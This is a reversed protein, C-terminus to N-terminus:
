PPDVPGPGDAEGVQEAVGSGLYPMCGAAQFDPVAIVMEGASPCPFLLIGLLFPLLLVAEQVRGM